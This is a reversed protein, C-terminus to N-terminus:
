YLITKLQKKMHRETVIKGTIYGIAVGLPFDSAWHVQNNMLAWSTVGTLIYGVPRIWKVEPYDRALVTITAMM